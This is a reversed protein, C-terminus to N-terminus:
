SLSRMRCWASSTSTPLDHAFRSLLKTVVPHYFNLLGFGTAIVFTAKVFKFVAIARLVGLSRAPPLTPDTVARLVRDALPPRATQRPLAEAPM